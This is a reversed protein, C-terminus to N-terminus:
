AHSHSGTMGVLGCGDEGGPRVPTEHTMLCVFQPSVKGDTFVNVKALVTQHSRLFRQEIDEGGSLISTLSLCIPCLDFSM